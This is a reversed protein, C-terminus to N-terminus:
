LKYTSRLNFSLSGWRQVEDSLDFGDLNFNSAYFSDTQWQGNVPNLYLFTVSNRDVVQRLINSADEVSIDDWQLDYGHVTGIVTNHMTLDQTRDSDDTSTTALVPKYKDPTKIRVGNIAFYRKM